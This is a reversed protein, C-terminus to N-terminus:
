FPFGPHIKSKSVGIQELRRARELDALNGDTIARDDVAISGLQKALLKLKSRRIHEKVAQAVVATKTKADTYNMLENLLNKDITVFKKM